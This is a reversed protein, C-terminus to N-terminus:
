SRSIRSPTILHSGALRQPQSGAYLVAEMLTGVCIFVLMWTVVWNLTAKRAARDTDDDSSSFM